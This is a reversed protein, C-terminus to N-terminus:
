SATKEKRDEFFKYLVLGVGGIMCLVFLVLAGQGLISGNVHGKVTGAADMATQGTIGAAALAAGAGQVTRMLAVQSSFAKAPVEGANAGIPAPPAIVVGDVPVVPTADPIAINEVVVPQVAMKVAFDVVGDDNAQAGDHLGEVRRQWGKGFTGWNKLSKMFNLRRDCYRTILEPAGTAAAKCVAQITADSILGDVKLQGTVGFFNANANITRQMDKVAQTVGSNVAYDFMAYDVGSPVSDGKVALWYNNRYIDAVEADSILHVSQVAANKRTRYRDYVKQTIGKNTPGGPDRPNNSFGGEHALLLALSPSFTADSM